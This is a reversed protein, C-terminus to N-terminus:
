KKQHNVVDVLIAIVLNLITISCITIFSFIYGVGGTFQKSPLMVNEWRYTDFSSITYYTFYWSRGM